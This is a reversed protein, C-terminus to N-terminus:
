AVVDVAERPSSATTTASIKEEVAEAGVGVAEVAVLPRQCPPTPTGSSTKVAFKALVDVGGIGVATDNVISM